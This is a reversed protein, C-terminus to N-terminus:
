PNVHPRRPWGLPGRRRDSSDSLERVALKSVSTVDKAALRELRAVVDDPVNLPYLNGM